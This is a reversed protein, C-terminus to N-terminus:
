RKPSIVDTQIRPKSSMFAGSLACVEQAAISGRASDRLAKRLPTELLNGVVDVILERVIQRQRFQGADSLDTRRM